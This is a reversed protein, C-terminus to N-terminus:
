EGDGMKDAATDRVLEYCIGRGKAEGRKLIGQAVLGSIDHYATDHGCKALRAWAQTSVVADFGDLLRVLMKVQRPNFPAKAFRQWFAHKFQVAEILSEARVLAARTCDLWWLLWATIDVGGTQAHRLQQYYETKQGALEHALSYFGGGASAQAVALSAACRALRGNGDAYPRLTALAIHVLGANLPPPTDAYKKILTARASALTASPPPQYSFDLGGADAFTVAEDSIRMGHSDGASPPGLLLSHWVQLRDHTLPQNHNLYVDALVRALNEIRVTAAVRGGRGDLNVGFEHAIAGYLQVADCAVGALQCTAVGEDTLGRVVADNQVARPLRQWGLSAEASEVAALKDALADGVWCLGALWDSHQWVYRTSATQKGNQTDTNAKRLWGM